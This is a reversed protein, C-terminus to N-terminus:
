HRLTTMMVAREKQACEGTYVAHTCFEVIFIM